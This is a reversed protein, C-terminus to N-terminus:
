CRRAGPTDNEVTSPEIGRKKWAAFVAAALESAGAVQYSEALLDEHFAAPSHIELVYPGAVDIVAELRPKGGDHTPVIRWLAWWPDDRGEPPPPMEVLYEDPEFQARLEAAVESLKTTQVDIFTRTIPMAVGPHTTSTTRTKLM